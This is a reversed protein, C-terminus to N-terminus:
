EFKKTFVRTSSTTHLQDTLNQKRMFIFKSFDKFLDFILFFNAYKLTKVSKTSVHINVAIFSGILLLYAIIFTPISNLNFLSVFLGYFDNFMSLSLYTYYNDYFLSSNTFFESFNDLESYVNNTINLFAPLILFFNRKLFFISVVKNTNGYVNLYFILLISIFIIVFEALFLFASFLDMNYYTLMLGCLITQLLLYFVTYYM